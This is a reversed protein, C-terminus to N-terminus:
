KLSGDTFFLTFDEIWTRKQVLNGTTMCFLFKEDIDHLKLRYQMNNVQVLVRLITNRLKVLICKKNHLLTIPAVFLKKIANKDYYKQLYM